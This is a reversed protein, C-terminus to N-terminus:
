QYVEVTHSVKESRLGARDTAEFTFTNVGLGNSSLIFATRTFLGDGAKEDGSQNSRGCPRENGDDCLLFRDAPATDNWFEVLKVDSLGNPDSVEAIFILARGPEGPAPRQIRAPITLSEIVPPSKAEFSRIYELHTRAEGSLRNHSDIAYVIVPYDDVELASLTVNVNGGYVNNGTSALNGALIPEGFADPPLVAYTVQSITTGRTQVIVEFDLEIHVNDGDIASEDLLSYDVRQPSISFKEIVPIQESAKPLPGPVSDCSSGCALTM